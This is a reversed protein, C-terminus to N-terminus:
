LEIVKGNFIPDHTSIILQGLDSEGLVEMLIQKSHDDLALTPEDLMLLGYEKAIALKIAIAVIVQQGGSLAHFPINNMYVLYTDDWMIEGFLQKTFQSAIKCIEIRKQKALLPGIQKFVSRIEEAKELKQQVISLKGEIPDIKLYQEVLGKRVGKKYDISQLLKDRDSILKRYKASYEQYDDINFNPVEVYKIDQLRLYLNTLEQEQRTTDNSYLASGCYPCVNNEVAQIDKEVQKIRSELTKRIDVSKNRLENAKSWEEYDRTYQEMEYDQVQLTSEIGKVEEQQSEIENKIMNLQKLITDFKKFEHEADEKASKLTNIPELMIRYASDWEDVGFVEDFVQKRLSPSMLFPTHFNFQSSGVIFSYLTNLSAGFLEELYKETEKVGDVLKGWDDYLTWNSNNGIVRSSTYENNGHKFQITVIAQDKGHEILEKLPIDNYNFLGVGIAILISSKGSGNKGLLINNGPEFEIEKFAHTRFNVLGVYTIEV